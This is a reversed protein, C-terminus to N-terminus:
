DVRRLVFGTRAPVYLSLQHENSSPETFYRTQHDIRGHGGYQKDDSDLLMQYSGAKASLTYDTYSKEPSINVVVLLEGRMFSAISDDQRVTLYSLEDDTIKSALTILAQDFAALDQYRLTEDDVLSWQRRAHQYSWDNGERPFDIWEPHGFENGMFNLYGGGHTMVTLLRILKHLAVGREVTPDDDDRRMHWYMAQDILRFILTQDGVLAQDHSEAYNIM